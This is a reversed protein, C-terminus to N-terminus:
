GIRHVHPLPARIVTPSAFHPFYKHVTETLPASLATKLHGNYFPIRPYGSAFDLVSLRILGSM